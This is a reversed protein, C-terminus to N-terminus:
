TRVKKKQDRDQRHDEAKVPKLNLDRGCPSTAVEKSTLKEEEPRLRLEKNCGIEEKWGRVYGRGLSLFYAPLEM